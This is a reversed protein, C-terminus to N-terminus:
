NHITKVPNRKHISKRYHNEITQMAVLDVEKGELYDDIQEYTVGLAVEDPLAPKLEELDATPVKLYLKSPCNLHALLQKGQRKNLGFLPAIDAAGDGHKTYFGTVAEASHDTGVVLGQSSGAIAYQVIMRERAKINGKNFDTVIAGLKELQNVHTDVVEGINYTILQDPNIFSLAVSCDDEDAQVKYPLRVAIFKYEDNGTETRLQDIAIQCLKGALTSDQGGSIGLVLSKLNAQILERKLFNVRTEIELNSNVEQKVKMENCIQTQM